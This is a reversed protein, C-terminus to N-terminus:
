IMDKKNFIAMQTPGGYHPHAGGIDKFVASYGNREAVGDCWSQFKQLGWEFRHDPHRMRTAPVGLIANYDSNPTTIFVMNPRFYGFVANEVTSLKDPDIHEITELMVAAHFGCLDNDAETFSAHKILVHDPIEGFCDEMRKQATHISAECIDIATIKKFQPIGALKELLFGDGCGLDLVNQAESDQLVNLVAELRQDHLATTENM